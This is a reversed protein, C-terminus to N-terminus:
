NGRPFYAQTIVAQITGVRPTLTLGHSTVTLPKHPAKVLGLRRCTLHAAGLFGEAQTRAGSRGQPGWGGARAPHVVQLSSCAQLCAASCSHLRRAREDCPM